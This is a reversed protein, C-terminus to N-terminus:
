RPLVNRNREALDRLEQERQLAEVVRDQAGSDADAPTLSVNTGTSEGVFGSVVRTTSSAGNPQFEVSGSACTIRTRAADTEVWFLANSPVIVQGHPTGVAFRVIADGWVHSGLIRGTPLSLDVYRGRIDSGTENGDKTLAIAVIELSTDSELQVLSNPLPSLALRSRSATKLRAGKGPHNSLGLLSFTRGGDSSIEVTGEISLVTALAEPTTGEWCGSLTAALALLSILRSLPALAGKWSVAASPLSVAHPRPSNRQRTQRV